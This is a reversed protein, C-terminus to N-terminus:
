TGSGLQSSTRSTSAHPGALWRTPSRARAKPFQSSNVTDLTIGIYESNVTSLAADLEAAPVVSNELALRVGASRLRPEVAQLLPILEACGTARGEYERVTRLLKSGCQVTFDLMRLLHPTGVGRTGVEIEIRHQAAAALLENLASDPLSDLPLNPGYQVVRVGLERAQDQLSMPTMPRAPEAGPFGISWMYTYTGIGLKMTPGWVRDSHHGVILVAMGAVAYTIARRPAGRWEGSLWGLSNSTILAVSMFLPWGVVNGLPGPANAGAGYVIFSGFCLLGM